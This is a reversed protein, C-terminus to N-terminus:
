FLKRQLGYEIIAYNLPTKINKERVAYVAADVFVRLHKDLVKFMNEVEKFESKCARLMIRWQEIEGVIYSIPLAELEQPSMDDFNIADDPDEDDREEREDDDFLGGGGGGGGVAGAIDDDEDNKEEEREDDDDYGEMEVEEEEYDVVHVEEERDAPNIPTFHLYKLKDTVPDKWKVIWDRDRICM